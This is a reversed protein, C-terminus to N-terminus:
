LRRCVIPLNTINEAGLPEPLVVITRSGAGAIGGTPIKRKLWWGPVARFPVSRRPSNRGRGGLLEALGHLFIFEDFPLFNVAPGAVPGQAALHLPDPLFAVYDNEVHVHDSPEVEFTDEAIPGARDEDHRGGDFSQALPEDLPAGIRGFGDFASYGLRLEFEGFSGFEVM